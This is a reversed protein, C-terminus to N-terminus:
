GIVVCGVDFLSLDSLYTNKCCRPPFSYTRTVNCADLMGRAQKALIDAMQNNKWKSHVIKIEQKMSWWKRCLNILNLYKGAKERQHISDVGM